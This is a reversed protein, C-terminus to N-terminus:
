SMGYKLFLYVSTAFILLGIFLFLVGKITKGKNKQARKRVEEAFNEEEVIEEDKLMSLRKQKDRKNILKQIEPNLLANGYIMAYFGIIIGLIYIITYM